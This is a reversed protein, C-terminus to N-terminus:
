SLHTRAVAVVVCVLFVLTATVGFPALLAPWWAHVGFMALQILVFAFIVAGFGKGIGAREGLALARLLPAAAAIGCVVGGLIARLIDM